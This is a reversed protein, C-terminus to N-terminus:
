CGLVDMYRPLLTDWSITQAYLDAEVSLSAVVAPNSRLHDIADTLAQPEAMYVDIEGAPARLSGGVRAQIPYTGGWSADPERGLVIIPCGCSLAENAVLSQGGFRRPLVAVDADAYLDRPDTLGDQVELETTFPLPSQTRITVEADAAVVLGTGARDAAAAHGAVHVFHKAQRRARYAFVERDVPFPLHVAGSLHEMRWTSPNLVVDPKQDSARVFEPNVQLVTKVGLRRAIPIVAPHYFTEAGLVVDLGALFAGIKGETLKSLAEAHLGPPYGSWDCPYPSGGDATLDIGYIREPELWKALSQTQYALGKSDARAGFIGLRM